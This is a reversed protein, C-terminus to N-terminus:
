VSEQEAIAKSVYIDLNQSSNNTDADVHHVIKDVTYYKVGNKSRCAIMEGLKPLLLFSITKNDTAGTLNNADFHVTTNIM